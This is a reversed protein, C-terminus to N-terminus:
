IYVYNGMWGILGKHMHLHRPINSQVRSEPDSPEPNRNGDIAPVKQGEAFSPYVINKDKKLNSHTFNFLARMARFLM